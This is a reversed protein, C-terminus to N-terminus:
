KVNIWFVAGLEVEYEKDKHKLKTEDVLLASFGWWGQWPFVFNFVGNADSKIVFNEFIESPMKQKDKNLYEVEIEANAVPKANQLVVGSFAMGKFITYPRTLALIEADLGLPKDWNEKAYGNIVTKAIHKIFKNEAEEFYPKNIFVFQYDNPSKIKYELKWNKNDKKLENTLDFEKNDVYVKAVEPKDESIIDGNFPHSFSSNLTINQPPNKEVIDVNSTLVQFHAFAGQTLMTALLISSFKM